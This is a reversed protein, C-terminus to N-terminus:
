KKSKKSTQNKKSKRSGNKKSKGKNNKGGKMPPATMPTMPASPAMPAPAAAGGKVQPMPPVVNSTPLKAELEVPMEGAGGTKKYEKAADKLANKFQYNPDKSKKEKYFKTAFKTWQSM